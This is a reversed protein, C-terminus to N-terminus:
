LSQLLESFIGILYASHCDILFIRLILEKFDIDWGYPVGQLVYYCHLLISFTKEIAAVMDHMESM